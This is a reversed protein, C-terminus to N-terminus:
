HFLLGPTSKIRWEYVNDQNRPLWDKSKSRLAARKASFCCIAIKYDKAQGFQPQFGREVVISDLVSAM